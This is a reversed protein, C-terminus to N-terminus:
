RPLARRLAARVLRAKSLRGRRLVWIRVARGAAVHLLRWVAIAVALALAVLAPRAAGRATLATRLGIAATAGGAVIAVVRVLMGRRAGYQLRIYRWVEEPLERANGAFPDVLPVRCGECVTGGAWTSKCAPCIKIM